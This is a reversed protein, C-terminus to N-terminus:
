WGQLDLGGGAPGLPERPPPSQEPQCGALALLLALAAGAHRLRM